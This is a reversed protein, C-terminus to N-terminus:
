PHFIVVFLIIKSTLYSNKHPLSFPNPFEIRIKGKDRKVTTLPFSVRIVLLSDYESCSVM